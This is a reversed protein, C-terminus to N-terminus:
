AGNQRLAGEAPPTMDTVGTVAVEGGTGAAALAPEAPAVPVARSPAPRQQLRLERYHMRVRPQSALAVHLRESMVQRVAECAADAVTALNAEPEVHLDLSVEVGKRRTRVSTRVQSVSAVERVAEEIRQGIAVTSLVADGATVDTVKVAASSSPTLEFVLLTLAVLAILAGGTTLVVKQLDDNNDSLWNVADRLGRISDDPM